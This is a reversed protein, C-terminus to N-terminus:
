QYSCNIDNILYTIIIFIYLFYALLLVKPIVEPIWQMTRAQHTDDFLDVGDIFLAIPTDLLRGCETLTESFKDILNRANFLGCKNHQPM